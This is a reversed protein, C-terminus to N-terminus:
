DYDGSTPTILGSFFLANLFLKESGLFTARFNPNDAFLVVAGAGMRQAVVAPTGSIEEVRKESAYGSLLPQDAYQVPVAFPDGKPRELLRTMNKHLAISRDGFGFGIPHSIDLDGEFIAGGVVHEADDRPRDGYNRRDTVDEASEDTAEGQQTSNDNDEGRLWKQATLAGQRSAIVIGGEERVWQQVRKTAPESLNTNGGGVLILHSYRSWDLGGLNDKRRMTVPIQMRNDLAHWVEGADTSAIGDDFLLLVEPKKISRFGTRDGLDPARGPTSGSTVAYTAVGDENAARTVLAHIEDNSIDQGTLPVFVAGPDFDQLGGQTRVSVQETAIRVRVDADLLRYLARPAYYDTWRLVYGVSSIPPSVQERTQVQAIEGLLNPSFARGLAAYDLDYALPLTWGSVDYFINEAFQTEQDFISRIMTYQPQDLRVVAAEGARWTQGGVTVDRALMNASIDHRGLLDIFNNFRAPDRRATFVYARRPDNSSARASDAFFQKQYRSIAVRNALAGEVTTLSTRFHTRVNDLLSVLGREAEILGGRAAGVEFLIGISGNVQPYTSGKGVYFNDFGRESTFLRAESDLFRIHSQAIASALDRAQEPILPNRRLPEGPHFYFPSETGMEHFDASVQPKWHHWKAVWARPEPQTLLLWQRNLDFWYHNTRAEIWLNHQHHAPDTVSVKGAFTQVHDVRRSHGDPNFIATILIVADNLTQEIQPGQAAAFHYLTPMAADMGASEAGHVGYNLWIIAPGEYPAAGPQLSALHATRIEEIRAQNAASTVTFFLIPRGEHSYGATEVSIRDSANAVATMYSVLQDHRVPKQGVSFGFLDEPTLVSPDYSYGEVQFAEHTQASASASLTVIGFFILVLRLM